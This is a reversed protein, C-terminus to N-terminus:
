AVLLMAVRRAAGGRRGVLLVAALLLPFVLYFQEEVALSWYHLLPSVPGGAQFYDTGVDIAHVNALFAAAWRADGAM